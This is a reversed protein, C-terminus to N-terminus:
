QWGSIKQGLHQIVNLSVRTRDYYESTVGVILIGDLAKAKKIFEFVWGIHLM